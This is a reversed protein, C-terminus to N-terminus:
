CRVRMCAHYGRASTAYALHVRKENGVTPNPTGRSSSPLAGGPAVVQSGRSTRVQVPVPATVLWLSSDHAGECRRV